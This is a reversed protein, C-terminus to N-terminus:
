IITRCIPCVTQNKVCSFHFIHGCILITKNTNSIIDLCVPCTDTDFIKNNLRSKYYKINNSILELKNYLEKYNIKYNFYKRKLILYKKKLYKRKIFLILTFIGLSKFLTDQQNETLFSIM